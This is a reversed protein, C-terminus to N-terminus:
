RGQPPQNPRNKNKEARGFLADYVLAAAGVSIAADAVNFAPWHYGAVYFDLFDVVAGYNVRDILNGLAGGIVGGVGLVVIRTEAKLLWAALFGVIVLALIPLGWTSLAGEQNFLGFSVGRNWTLVVNFFPTLPFVQPPQMLRAVIWWKSLQDVAVVAVAVALGLTIVTRRNM